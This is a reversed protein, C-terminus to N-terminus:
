IAHPYRREYRQEDFRFESENRFREYCETFNQKTFEGRAHRAAMEEGTILFFFIIRALTRPHVIRACRLAFDLMDLTLNEMLNRRIWRSDYRYGFFKIEEADWLLWLAKKEVNMFRFQALRDGSFFREEIAQRFDSDTYEITMKDKM